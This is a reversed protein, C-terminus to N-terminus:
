NKIKNLQRNPIENAGFRKSIVPFSSPVSEGSCIIRGASKICGGREWISDSKQKMECASEKVRNQKIM